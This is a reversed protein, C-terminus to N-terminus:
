ALLGAMEDRGPFSVQTGTRTVSLAAVANARRASERLEMGATLFYALSGIFADGAGTTDVATTRVGPILETGIDDMVLCGREGLTVLVTRAGQERLTRAAAEVEERTRAPKGTLAEIETENPATIDCLGLMGEPLRCAPAPNFITRVGHKRATRLAEITTDLPVELQCVLTESAAIAEEAQRVDEPSLGDNAGPVIIVMNRGDPDVLIPAVGSFREEDFSVFRTDIGRAKFNALTMEGMSDRGLRTVMVVRAGMLAAMVAQNAGKGGCGMHFSSGVLTEGMRPLRPIKSILDMNSSGVVCIRPAEKGYDKM